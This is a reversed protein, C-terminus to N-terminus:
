FDHSNLSDLFHTSIKVGAITNAAADPELWTFSHIFSHIILDTDRGGVLNALTPTIKSAVAAVTSDGVVVLMTSGHGVFTAHAAPASSAVPEVVPMRLRMLLASLTWVHCPLPRVLM